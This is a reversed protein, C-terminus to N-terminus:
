SAEELLLQECHEVFEKIEDASSYCVWEMLLTEYGLDEVLKYLRDVEKM